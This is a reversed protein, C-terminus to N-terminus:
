FPGFTAGGAPIPIEDPMATAPKAGPGPTQQAQSGSAGAFLALALCALILIKRHNM